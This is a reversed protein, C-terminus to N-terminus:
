APSSALGPGSPKVLAADEVPHWRGDRLSFLEVAGRAASTDDKALVHSFAGAAYKLRGANDGFPLLVARYRIVSGDRWERTGQCVLATGVEFMKPAFEVALRLRSQAPAAALLTGATCSPADEQFNRGVFEFELQAEASVAGDGIARAIFCWSWDASFTAPHLHNISPYPKERKLVIWERTIRFVMRREQRDAEDDGHM